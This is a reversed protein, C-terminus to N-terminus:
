LPHNTSESKCSHSTYNNVLAGTIALRSTNMADHLFARSLPPGSGRSFSIWSIELKPEFRSSRNESVKKSQTCFVLKTRKEYSSRRHLKQLAGCSMRFNGCFHWFSLRTNLTRRKHNGVELRRSVQSMGEPVVRDLCYQSDVMNQPLKGGYWRKFHKSGSQWARKTSFSLVFYACLGEILPVLSSRVTIFAIM